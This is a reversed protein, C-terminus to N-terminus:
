TTTTHLVCELRYVNDWRELVMESVDGVIKPACHVTLMVRVGQRSEPHNVGANVNGSANDYHDSTGFVACYRSIKMHEHVHAHIHLM